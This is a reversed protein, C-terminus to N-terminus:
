VPRSPSLRVAAAPSSVARDPRDLARGGDVAVDTSGVLEVRLEMGAFLARMAVLPLVVLGLFTLLVM